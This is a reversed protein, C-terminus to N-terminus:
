KRGLVWGIVGGTLGMMVALVIPDVLATTMNMTNMTGYINLDMGLAMIFGIMAGAKVGGGFTSIRAWNGFIYVLLYAQVINGAILAWWVTEEEARMVGTASGTNAAMFDALLVGYSLFGLMFYVVFGALTAM